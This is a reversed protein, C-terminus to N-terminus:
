RPQVATRAPRAPKAPTPPIAPVPAIAPEVNPDPDANWEEINISGNVTRLNVTHGGSGIKAKVHRSSIRGVMQVPFDTNVRGSVTQADLDADIGRSLAATISGNVTKASVGGHELSRMSVEIGGNV